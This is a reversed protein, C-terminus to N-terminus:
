SSTFTLIIFYFISFIASLNDIPILFYILISGELYTSNNNMAISKKGSSFSM